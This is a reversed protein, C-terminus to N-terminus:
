SRYSFESAKSHPRLGTRGLDAKESETSTQHECFSARGHLWCQPGVGLPEQGRAWCSFEWPDRSGVPFRPRLYSFPSSLSNGNFLGPTSTEQLFTKLESNRFRQTSAPSRGAPHQPTLGPCRAPSCTPGPLRPLRHESWARDACHRGALRVSRGRLLRDLICVNKKVVESNEGTPLLPAVKKHHSGRRLHFIDGARLGREERPERSVRRPM